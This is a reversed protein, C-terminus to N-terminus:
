TDLNEIIKAVDESPIRIQIGEAFCVNLYEAYVDIKKHCSPCEISDVTPHHFVLMSCPECGFIRVSDRQLGKRSPVPKILPKKRKQKDRVGM